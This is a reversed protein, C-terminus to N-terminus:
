SAGRAWASPSTGAEGGRPRATRACPPKGAKMCAKASAARCGVGAHVGVSRRGVLRPASITDRRVSMTRALPHKAHVSFLMQLHGGAVETTEGVQINALAGQALHELIGLAGLALIRQLIPGESKAPWELLDDDDVAIEPERAGAAIAFTKLAEDRGDAHSLDAHHETELDRTKGPARPVPVAQELDAGESVREDEVLVADVVRGM